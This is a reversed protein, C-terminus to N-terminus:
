KVMSLLTASADKGKKFGPGDENWKALRKDIEDQSYKNADEKKVRESREHPFELIQSLEIEKESFGTTNVIVYTLRRLVTLREITEFEIRDYHSAIAIQIDSLTEEYFEKPKWGMKTCEYLLRSITLEVVEGEARRGGV